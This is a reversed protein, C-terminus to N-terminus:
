QLYNIKMVRKEKIDAIPEIYYIVHQPEKINTMEPTVEITTKGKISEYSKLPKIGGDAEAIAPTIRFGETNEFVTRSIGCMAYRECWQCLSVMCERSVKVVDGCREDGCPLFEFEGFKGLDICRRVNQYNCGNPEPKSDCRTKPWYDYNNRKDHDPTTSTIYASISEYSIGNGCIERPVENELCRNFRGTKVTFLKTQLSDFDTWCFKLYGKHQRGKITPDNCTFSYVDSEPPLQVIMEVDFATNHHVHKAEIQFTITDDTIVPSELIWVGVDSTKFTGDKEACGSFNTQGVESGQECTDCPKRKCWFYGVILTGVLLGWPIIKSTNM